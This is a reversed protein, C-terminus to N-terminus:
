ECIVWPCNFTTHPEALRTVECELEDQTFHFVQEYFYTYFLRGDRMFEVYYSSLKEHYIVKMIIIFDGSELPVSILSDISKELLYVSDKGKFVQCLQGPEPKYDGAYFNLM